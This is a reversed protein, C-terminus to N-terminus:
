ESSTETLHFREGLTTPTDLDAVRWDLIGRRIINSDPIVGREAFEALSKELDDVGFSLLFFGEGHEMLHRGPVSDEDHPAVLVLWVGGLKVRATSVGREPLEAFEFDDLGLISKYAVVSAQLDKVVFNIHHVSTIQAM